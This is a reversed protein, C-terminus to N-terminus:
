APRAPQGGGDGEPAFRKAKSEALDGKALSRLFGYTVIVHIKSQTWQYLHKSISHAIAPYFNSVEVDVRVSAPDPGGTGPEGLREVKIRLLGEGPNSVLLGGAIRWTVTGAQPSIEYEPASFSLLKFPKAILVVDRGDERYAVRILGLTVRTIHRWYTRALRELWTASWIRELGDRSINVTASQISTVAGRSDMVTTDALDGVEAPLNRKRM